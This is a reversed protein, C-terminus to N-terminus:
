GLREWIIEGVIDKNEDIVVYAAYASDKQRSARLMIKHAEYESLKFPRSPHLFTRVRIIITGLKGTARIEREKPFLDEKLINSYGNETLWSEVFSEGTIDIETSVLNGM